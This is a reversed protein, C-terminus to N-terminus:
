ALYSKLLELFVAAPILEHAKTRHNHIDACKVGDENIVVGMFPINKEPSHIIRIASIRGEEFTGGSKEGM